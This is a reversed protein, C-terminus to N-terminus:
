KWLLKGRGKPDIRIAEFIVHFDGTRVRLEGGGTLLFQLYGGVNQGHPTFGDPQGLKAVVEDVTPRTSDLVFITDVAEPTRNAAPAGTAVEKPVERSWVWPRDQSSLTGVAILWVSLILIPRRM